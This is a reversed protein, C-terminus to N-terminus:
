LVKLRFHYIHQHKNCSQCTKTWLNQVMITGEKLQLVTKMYVRIYDIKKVM